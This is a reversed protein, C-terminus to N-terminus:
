ERGLRSGFLEKTTIGYKIYDEEYHWWGDVRNDWIAKLAAKYDEETYLGPYCDIRGIRFGHNELFREQNSMQSLDGELTFTAGDNQKNAGSKILSFIGDM